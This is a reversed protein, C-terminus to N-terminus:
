HVGWILLWTPRSINQMLRHVTLVEAVPSGVIVLAAGYHGRDDHGGDHPRAAFAGAPRTPTPAVDFPSNAEILFAM